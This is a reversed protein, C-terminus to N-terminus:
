NMIPWLQYVIGLLDFLFTNTIIWLQYVLVLDFHLIGVINSVPLM